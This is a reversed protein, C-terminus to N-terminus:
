SKHMQLLYLDRHSILLTQQLRMGGKVDDVNIILQDHGTKGSIFQMVTLLIPTKVVKGKIYSMCGFYPFNLTDFSFM